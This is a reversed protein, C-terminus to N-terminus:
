SSSSTFQSFVLGHTTPSAQANRPSRAPTRNPEWAQTSGPVFLAVLLGSSSIAFTWLVHRLTSTPAGFQACLLVDLTFRCPHINLPYAMLVSVAMASFASLMIRSGLTPLMVCYNSILNGSTSDPADAYGALGVVLYLFLCLTMCRRSVVNMRKPTRHPLEDYLSPVNIQMTFAFCIIAMAEVSKPTLHLLSIGSSQVDAAENGRLEEQQHGAQYEIQGGLQCLLAHTAVSAVLYFLSLVGLLSSCQLSSIREVLSIPVMFAGWIISMAVRRTLWPLTKQVTHLDLLPELLDGVAVTYAIVTGYCFILINVEVIVGMGKGFCFVTLEELSRTKTAEIASVLLVVSFNASLAMLLVGAIGGLAGLQQFAYPLSLAGAGLTASCMNFVTGWTDSSPVVGAAISAPLLHM